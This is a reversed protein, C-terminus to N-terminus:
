SSDGHHRHPPLAHGACDIGVIRNTQLDVQTVYAPAAPLAVQAAPVPGDAADGCLRGLTVHDALAIRLWVQGGWLGLMGAGERVAQLGDVVAASRDTGSVVRRAALTAFWAAEPGTDIFRGAIVCAEPDQPDRHTLVDCDSGAPTDPPVVIRTGDALLIHGPGARDRTLPGGDSGGEGWTVWGTLEARDVQGLFDIDFVAPEDGKPGQGVCGAVLLGGCLALWLPRVGAGRWRQAM